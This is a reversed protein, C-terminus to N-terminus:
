RNDEKPPPICFALCFAYMIDWDLGVVYMCVYLRRTPDKRVLKCLVNVEYDDEARLPPLLYEIRV